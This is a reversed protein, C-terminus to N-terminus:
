SHHWKVDLNIASLVLIVDDVDIVNFVYNSFLSLISVLTILPSALFFFFFFLFFFFFFVPFLFAFCLVVSLVAVHFTTIHSLDSENVFLFTKNILSESYNFVSALYYKNERRHLCWILSAIIVIDKTTM